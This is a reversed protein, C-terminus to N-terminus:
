WGFGDPRLVTGVLVVIAALGCVIILVTRGRRGVVARASGPDWRRHQNAYVFAEAFTPDRLRYTRRQKDFLDSEDDTFDFASTVSTLPIAAHRRSLNYAGYASGAAILGFVVVIGLFVLRGMGDGGVVAALAPPALFVAMGGTVLAGIIIPQRFCLLVRKAPSVTVAEAEHRAICSPCFPVHVASVVYNVGGDPGEDRRFVKEILLRGDAPSGCNACVPPMALRSPRGHLTVM